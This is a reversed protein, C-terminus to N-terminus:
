PNCLMVKVLPSFLYQHKAPLEICKYRTRLKAGKQFIRKTRGYYFKAGAPVDDLLMVNPNSNKDYKALVKSLKIDTCTSAGPDAMYNKVAESIDNPFVGARIFPSLTTRFASKWETGHPKVNDRHELYTILHALEHMLTILFAYCNLNGNVTLLHRGGRRATFDGLKTSRPPTIILHHPYQRLMECARAVAAEPLFRQLATELDTSEKMLSKLVRFTTTGNRVLEASPSARPM